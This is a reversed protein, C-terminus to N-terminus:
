SPLRPEMQTTSGPAKSTETAVGSAASPRVVPAQGGEGGGSRRVIEAHVVEAMPEIAPGIAAVVANIPIAPIRTPPDNIEIGSIDHYAGPSAVREAEYRDAAADQGRQVATWVQWAMTRSVQEQTPNPGHDKECHAFFSDWGGVSNGEHKEMQGITWHFIQAIRQDQIGEPVRLESAFPSDIPVPQSRREPHWYPGMGREHANNPDVPPLTSGHRAFGFSPEDYYRMRERCVQAFAGRADAVTPNQPPTAPQQPTQKNM